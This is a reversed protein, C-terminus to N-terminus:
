PESPAAYVFGLKVKASTGASAKEEVAIGAPVGSEDKDINENTTNWFVADGVSITLSTAAPLEYVGTLSVAGTAGSAIEELAVGICKEMPVVDMYGIDTEAKYDINEGKQVFVAKAM